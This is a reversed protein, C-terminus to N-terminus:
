EYKLLLEGVEESVSEALSGLLEFRENYVRKLEALAESADSASAKRLRQAAQRVPLAVLHEARKQELDMAQTVLNVREEQGTAVRADSSTEAPESSQLDPSPSNEPAPIENPMLHEPPPMKPPEPKKVPQLDSSMPNQTHASLLLADVEESVPKARSGMKEFQEILVRELDESLEKVKDTSGADIAEKLRGAAACVPLCASTEEKTSAHKKLEEERRAALEAQLAQKDGQKKIEQERRAALEAQLANSQEESLKLPQGRPPGPRAKPPVPQVPTDPPRMRPPVRLPQKSQQVNAPVLARDGQPMPQEAHPGAVQLQARTNAQEAAHLMRPRSEVPSNLVAVAGIRVLAALLPTEAFELGLHGNLAIQELLSLPVPAVPGDHAGAQSTANKPDLSAGLSTRPKKARPGNMEPPCSTSGAQVSQTPAAQLSEAAGDLGNPVPYDWSSRGTAVHWYFSAQYHDDFHLEWGPPPVGPVTDQGKASDSVAGDEALAASKVAAAQLQEAADQSGDPDPKEWSSTGTEVHWYFWENYRDDFHLEWGEPLNGPVAVDDVEASVAM